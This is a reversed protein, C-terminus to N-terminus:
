NLTLPYPNASSFKNRGLDFKRTAIDTSTGDADDIVEPNNSGYENKGPIFTNKAELTAEQQEAVTRLITSAPIQTTLDSLVVPTEAM